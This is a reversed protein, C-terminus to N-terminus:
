WGLRELYELYLFKNQKFHAWSLCPNFICAWTFSTSLSCHSNCWLIKISNNKVWSTTCLQFNYRQLQFQYLKSKINQFTYSVVSNVVTRPLKKYAKWIFRTESCYLYKESYISMIALHLIVQM